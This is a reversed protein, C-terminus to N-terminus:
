SREWRSLLERARAIESLKAGQPYCIGSNTAIADRLMTPLDSCGGEREYYLALLLRARACGLDASRSYAEAIASRGGGLKEHCRGMILYAWAADSDCLSLGRFNGAFIEFPLTPVVDAAEDALYMCLHASPAEGAAELREYERLLTKFNRHPLRAGRGTSDQRDCFATGDVVVVFNTKTRLHDVNEHCVESFRVRSENRWFRTYTEVRDVSVGDRCMVLYPSAVLLVGPMNLNNTVRAVEELTGAYADDADLKCVYDGTCLDLGLNRAAAFDRLLPLGTFTSDFRCRWSSPVDPFFLDPRSLPSIAVGSCGIKLVDCARKIIDPTGDTSGTDVFVVETAFCVVSKIAREVVTAGDRVLMHVSITM